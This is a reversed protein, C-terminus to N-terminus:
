PKYVVFSFSNSTNTGVNNKLYILLSGGQDNTFVEDVSTGSGGIPTVQSIYNSSNYTEGTITIVYANISNDWLVTINNSSASLNGSADVVGYAIPLMNANGTSGTNIESTSNSLTLTGNVDLKSSPSTSGVGMNGTITSYIDAGSSKWGYIVTTQMGAENFYSFQGDFPVHNLLTSLTPYMVRESAKAYPVAGFLYIGLLEFGNGANIQIKLYHSKSVWSIGSFSGTNVSGGGIKLTFLGYSNTTISNHTEEYATSGTSSDAIITIIMDLNQGQLVDGNNDHAVAQYNFFQTSSQSYFNNFCSFLILILSIKFFYNYM